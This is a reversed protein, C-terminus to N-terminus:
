CSPGISGETDIPYHHARFLEAPLDDPDICSNILAKGAGKLRALNFVTQEHTSNESKSVIELQRTFTEFAEGLNVNTRLQM